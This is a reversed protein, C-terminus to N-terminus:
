LDDGKIVRNETFIIDMKIDHKYVPLSELIQFDFAVGILHTKTNRSFYRDYYGGGYGLRYMKKDFAVGPIIYVDIKKNYSTGVPEMIGFKGKEFDNVSTVKVFYIDKGKIKPFVIDKDNLLDVLKLLNVENRFPYYTAISNFKISKLYEITKKLIIENYTNYLKIKLNTRKELMLKRIKNKM